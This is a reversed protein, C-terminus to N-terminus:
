RLGRRLTEVSLNLHFEWGVESPGLLFVGWQFVSEADPKNWPDVM